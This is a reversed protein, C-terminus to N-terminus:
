KFVMPLFQITNGYDFPPAIPTSRSLSNNASDLDTQNDGLAISSSIVMTGIADPYLDVQIPVSRSQRADINSLTCTITPLASTNCNEPAKIFFVEPPLNITLQVTRATALDSNAVDFIFTTLRGAEPVSPDLFIQRIAVDTEDNRAVLVRFSAETRNGADDTAVCTVVTKGLPFRSGWTPDCSLSPTTDTEDTVQIESRYDINAGQPNTTKVFIDVVRLTPPVTDVQQAVAARSSSPRVLEGAFFLICLAVLLLPFLVAVPLRTLM